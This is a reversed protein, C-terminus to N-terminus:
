TGTLKQEAGYLDQWAEFEQPKGFAYGQMFDIGMDTLVQAIEANEVFEAVTKLGMEHSLTIFSKVIAKSTPNNEINCVFSGDIKLYDLALSSLYGYSSLGSGFDDLAFTCGLERMDQIFESVTELEQIAATETLEFCLNHAQIHSSKVLEALRAMCTRNSLTNGSLNVAISVSQGHDHFDALYAIAQNVVWYDIVPMMDFKEAIPIFEGPSIWNNDEDHMRLLAEFRNPMKDKDTSVIPQLFLALRGNDHASRLQQLKEFENNLQTQFSNQESYTQVQNRGGQKASYCAIDSRSVLESSATISTDMFAIGASAGITFNRNNWNFKYDAVRNIVRQALQMASYEDSHALLVAFEDGGLRALTADKAFESELIETIEVLITDGAIHGAQDNVLKFRDLDFTILAINDIGNEVRKDLTTKLHSDFARRNLLGTLEDHHAQYELQQQSEQFQTVDRGCGLYGTFTGDTDFQPEAIIHNHVTKGESAWSLIVDLPEHARLKEDHIKLQENKVVLPNVHDIRTMGALDIIEAGSLSATHSTHYVYRLESDLEWSWDTSIRTFDFVKTDLGLNKQQEAKLNSVDFAALVSQKNSLVTHKVTMLQGNKLHHLFDAENNNKIRPVNTVSGLDTLKALFEEYLMDICLEAAFSDYPTNETDSWSKLLGSEDFHWYSEAFGAIAQVVASDRLRADQDQESQLSQKRVWFNAASFLWKHPCFPRNATLRLISLTVHAHQTM